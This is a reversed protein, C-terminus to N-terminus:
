SNLIEIAKLYKKNRAIDKETVKDLRTLDSNHKLDALKVNIASQNKSNKISLIYDFYSISKDHTLLKLADVIENSFTKTILDVYIQDSDEFIDHILAVCTEEETQMQEALHIPHLIYPLGAKDIQGQHAQFAMKIAIRTLRTYIMFLGWSFYNYKTKLIEELYLRTAKSVALSEMLINTASEGYKTGSMQEELNTNTQELAFVISNIQEKSLDIRM